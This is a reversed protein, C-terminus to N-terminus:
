GKDEQEVQEVQEVQEMQEMQEMQEVQEVQEKSTNLNGESFDPCFTFPLSPFVTQGFILHQLRKSATEQICSIRGIM